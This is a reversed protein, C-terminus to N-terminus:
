QGAIRFETPQSRASRGTGPERVEVTITYVGPTAPMVLRFPLHYDRPPSRFVDDHPWNIVTVRRHRDGPDIQEVPRGGADRVQLSVDARVRFGDKVPAGALHRVEVYLQAVDGPRYPRAEPWPEYRGFGGISQPKCFVVKEIRLPAKAELKAAAAALQDAVIGAEQPDPAAHNMAAGRALAPLVALAFEQNPKDLKELHRIAEEPRNEVYARVAALLPPDATPATLVPFPGPDGGKAATLLADPTPPPVPLPGTDPAAPPASPYSRTPVVEGPRLSAFGAAAPPPNPPPDPRITGSVHLCGAPAVAVVFAAISLRPSVTM